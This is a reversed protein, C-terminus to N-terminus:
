CQMGDDDMITFRVSSPQIRTLHDNAGGNFSLTLDFYRDGTVEAVKNPLTEVGYCRRGDLGISYDESVEM